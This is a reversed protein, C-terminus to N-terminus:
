DFNWYDEEEEETDNKARVLAATDWGSPHPLLWKYEQLYRSIKDSCLHLTPIQEYEGHFDDKGFCYPHIEGTWPCGNEHTYKLFEHHNGLIAENYM